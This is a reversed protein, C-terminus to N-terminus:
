VNTGWWSVEQRLYTARSGRCSEHNQQVSRTDSISPRPYLRAPQSPELACLNLGLGPPCRSGGGFNDDSLSCNPTPSSHSTALRRCGGRASVRPTFWRTRFDAFSGCEPSIPRIDGEPMGREYPLLGGRARRGAVREERPRGGSLVYSPRNVRKPSSSSPAHWSRASAPQRPIDSRRVTPCGVLRTALEVVDEVAHRVEEHANTYTDVGIGVCRGQQDDHVPM